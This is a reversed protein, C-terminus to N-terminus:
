ENHLNQISSHPFVSRLLRINFAARRGLQSNNPTNLSLSVFNCKEFIMRFISSIVVGALCLIQPHEHEDPSTIKIEPLLISNRIRTRSEHRETSYMFPCLDQLTNKLAEFHSHAVIVNDYLHERRYDISLLDKERSCGLADWADGPIRGRKRIGEASQIFKNQFFQWVHTSSRKEMPTAYNECNFSGNQYQYDM